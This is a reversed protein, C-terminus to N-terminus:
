SIKCDAFCFNEVLFGLVSVHSHYVGFQTHDDCVYIVAHFTVPNKAAQAPNPM